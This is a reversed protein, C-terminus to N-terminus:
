QTNTKPVWPSEPHESDYRAKNQEYEVERAREYAKGDVEEKLCRDLDEDDQILAALEAVLVRHQSVKADARCLHGTLRENKNCVRWIFIFQVTLAVLGTLLLWDRLDM